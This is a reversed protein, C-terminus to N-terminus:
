PTEGLKRRGCAYGENLFPFFAATPNVNLRPHVAASPAAYTHSLLLFLSGHPNLVPKREEEPRAPFGLVGIRMSEKHHMNTEHRGVVDVNSNHGGEQM